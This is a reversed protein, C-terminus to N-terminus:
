KKKRTDGLLVFNEELEEITMRADRFFSIACKRKKILIATENFNFTRSIKMKETIKIVKYFGDPNICKYVLIKGILEDVFREYVILGLEKKIEKKLKRPFRHVHAM